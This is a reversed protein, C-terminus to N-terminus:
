QNLKKKHQLHIFKLHNVQFILHIDNALVEMKNYRVKEKKAIKGNVLKLEIVNSTEIPLATM